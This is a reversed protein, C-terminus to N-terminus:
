SPELEPDLNPVPLQRSRRLFSWEELVEALQDRCAELTPAYALVGQVGPIEGYFMGDEVILEYRAPRMAAGIYQGHDM